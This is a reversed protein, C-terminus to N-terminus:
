GLRAAFQRISREFLEPHEMPGSHTSDAQVRMETKPFYGRLIATPDKGDDVRGGREGYIVLVPVPSDEIRRWETPDLMSEYLMAEVERPSALEVRGDETDVAAHAVYADLFEDRWDKFAGRGRFHERMAARGPFTSRRGLARQVLMPLRSHLGDNSPVTPEYVVVGRVRDGCSAATLLAVGGGRSHAVLLLQNLDLKDILGAVDDRFASWTYSDPKDSLGHGRLDLALVHFDSALSEVLPAYVGGSHGNGHLVLIPPGPSETDFYHLRTGNVDIFKSSLAM